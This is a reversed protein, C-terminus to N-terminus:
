KMFIYATGVFSLDACGVKALYVKQSMDYSWGMIAGHLAAGANAVLATVVVPHLIGHLDKPVAEGLLYGGVTAALGFPLAMQMGWEGKMALTVGLSVAAVTGWAIYHLVSFPPSPKAKAIEKVPTRVAERIFVTIQATFLLTAVMGVSLIGVIRLLDGGAAHGVFCQPIPSAINEVHPTDGYLLSVLCAPTFVGQLQWIM